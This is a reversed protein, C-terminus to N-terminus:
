VPRLLTLYWGAWINFAFVLMVVAVLGTYLALVHWSKPDGPDPLERSLLWAGLVAALGVSALHEKVEFLGTAWRLDTDFYDRRVRVRFTPYLLAGLAFCAAYLIALLRVYLKEHPIKVVRGRLYGWLRVSLHVCISAGSVAALLHLFLLLRAAPEFVM